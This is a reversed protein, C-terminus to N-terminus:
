VEMNKPNIGQFFACIEHKKSCMPVKEDEVVVWVGDVLTHLITL